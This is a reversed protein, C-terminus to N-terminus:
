KIGKRKKQRLYFISIFLGSICLLFEFGPTSKKSQQISSLVTDSNYLYDWTGDGNMDILYTGNEQKEISTQNGTENSYFMDYIGDNDNDILYGLNDVYMITSQTTTENQDRLQQHEPETILAYTTTTNSAGESDRVTLNVTFNGSQNYIHNIQKSYGKHADGFSWTYNVIFGDDHSKSANFLISHSTFGYYPGNCDAVPKQNELSSSSAGGMNSPTGDEDQDCITCVTQDLYLDHIEENTLIKNFVKAEDIVGFFGTTSNFGNGLYAIDGYDYLTLNSNTISSDLEGNIYFKCGHGGEFVFTVYSWEDSPVSGTSTPWYNVNHVTDKVMTRLKGAHDSTGVSFYSIGGINQTLINYKGVNQPNVWATITVNGYEGGFTSTNALSNGFQIYSKIGDESYFQYAGSGNYGGNQLWAVNKLNGNNKKGSQDWANGYDFSWYAIDGADCDCPCNSATEGHIGNQCINNNNCGSPLPVYWDLPDYHNNVEFFDTSGDWDSDPNTPDTNNKFESLDNLGENDFDGHGDRTLNGFYHLEWDDNMGDGDGDALGTSFNGLYGWRIEQENSQADSSRIRFEYSTNQKLFLLVRSHNCVKTINEESGDPGDPLFSYGTEWWVGNSTYAVQSNSPLNTTWSINVMTGTIFEITVNQADRFWGTDNDIPWNVDSSLTESAYKEKQVDYFLKYYDWSTSYLGSTYAWGFLNEGLVRNMEMSSIAAKQNSPMMQSGYVQSLGYGSTFYRFYPNNPTDVNAIDGTEGTLSYNVYADIMVAKLGNYQPYSDWVDVSEHHIIVGDNGLQERVAKMFNYNDVLHDPNVGANDFYYGDLGYEQRFSDLYLLTESIPQNIAPYSPFTISDPDFAPGGFYTLVKFGNTHAVNVLNKITSPNGYDYGYMESKPLWPNDDSNLLCPFASKSYICNPYDGDYCQYFTTWLLIAGFGRNKYGDINGLFDQIGSDSYLFLIFPKSNEGYLGEFNFPKPPYVMHAMRSGEVMSFTTSNTDNSIAHAPPSTATSYNAHLSGGYGDTWMRDLDGKRKNWPPNTILNIHSYTFPQTANIYFFSDSYFTFDALNTQILAETSNWDMIVITGSNSNFHLEAVRRPNVTNTAPDIRRWMQLSTQNLIYVAGTTNVMVQDADGTVSLIEMGSLPDPSYEPNETTFWYTHNSWGGYSDSVLVRWYYTRHYDQVWSTNSAYYTGNQVNSTTNFTMWSGSANTQWTINMLDSETDSTNISFRSPPKPNDESRNEPSPNSVSPVANSLTSADASTYTSSWVQDTTNWSWVRYYWHQGPSLETHSYSTGTGNYINIGDTMSSPYSGFKAEVYSYTAYTGKSWSVDIRFRNYSTPTLSGPPYPIYQNRTTFTYWKRTWNYSDTTNVYVRCVTNYSLGTIFLSKTGNSAETASSHQGNTCNLWWSFVDGNADNIPIQWTLSLANGTSSNTPSPTGFTPSTNPTTTTDVYSYTTSWVHDTTNWSWARYYWHQSQSLGTHLYSSGTNNYINTGDTRSSPYSNLKAEIYTYTAYTGKTWSVDIRTRNYPTATFSSPPNPIYQSRTTFTYWKRTWYTGDTVNVYVKYSTGYTLGSLSISKSGNMACNASGSGVNPQTQITWNFTNGDKDKITANWSSLTMAQNESDNTPNEYTFSPAFSNSSAKTTFHYTRNTYGGNGDNVLIRWYYRTNYSTVWSTNYAYYTGNNKNTTTNFTVWSGSANTQWTINMPTPSYGSMDYDLTFEHASSTLYTNLEPCYTKVKIQNTAPCFQMLRIYGNPPYHEQTYASYDQVLTYINNGNTGQDTKRVYNKIHGGLMLFLNPRYKLTNFIDLGSGGWTNDADLLHHSILIGRRSNYTQLTENAWQLISADNYYSISVAIFSMGSANFLTYHNDNIAGYHGGYYSRGQFLDIGFYTNYYVGGSLGYGGNDHANGVGVDYPIGATNLTELASQATQFQSEPGDTVDGVQTVYVINLENKHAVIWQTINTVIFAGREQYYHQMDGLGVITFNASSNITVAFNSPPVDIGISGNTPSANSAIPPWIATSTCPLVYMFNM